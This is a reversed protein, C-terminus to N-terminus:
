SRVGSDELGCEEEWQGRGEARVVGRVDKGYGHGREPGEEREM